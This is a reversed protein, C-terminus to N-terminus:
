TQPHGTEQSARWGQELSGAALEGSFSQEVHTDELVLWNLRSRLSQDHSSRAAANAAGEDNWITIRGIRASDDRSEIRFTAWHGPQTGHFEALEHLLQEAQEREHPKPIFVSIRVYTM